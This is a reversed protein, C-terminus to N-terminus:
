DDNVFAFTTEMRAHTAAQGLWFLRTTSHLVNFSPSIDVMVVRWATEADGRVSASIRKGSDLKLIAESGQLEVAIGEALTFGVEFPADPYEPEWEIADEIKLAEDMLSVRRQHTVGHSKKYGDHNAAVGAESTDLLRTQARRSWMFPGAIQSQDANDVVLTNHVRTKRFHDRWAGGSHYLFTGADIFVPEKGLHLWVALADAHGHAAISLFGLPGHDFTVVAEDMGWKSRFISYGGESFTRRRPVIRNETTPRTDSPLLLDRLNPETFPPALQPLKLWRMVLSIVSAAYRAEPKLSTRLVTSEDDDGIRPPYGDEDMLETIFGAARGLRNKVIQSFPEGQADAVIGAIVLWELAYLAYFVSQEAGVGDAHFLEIIRRELEQKSRLRTTAAYPLDPAAVTALYLAVLEAVRHNNASSHLSPYRRIRAVHAGLFRYVLGLLRRRADESMVSLAVLLSVIRSAAEIGSTWNIGRYPPNKEMWAKLLDAMVHWDGAVSSIQLMQLRNIEWVFKVDGMGALHRFNVSHANTEAGPWRKESVPDVLWIDRRWDSLNTPWAQNLFFFRGRAIASADDQLMASLARVSDATLGPLPVFARGTQAFRTWGGSAASDSIRKAAEGLRFGLEALSMRALRQAYWVVRQRANFTM